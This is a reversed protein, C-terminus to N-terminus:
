IWVQFKQASWLYHNPEVLDKTSKHLKFMVSYIRPPDSTIGTFWSCLAILKTKSQDTVKNGPGNKFINRTAFGKIKCYWVICIIYTFNECYCQQKGPPIRVRTKQEEPKNSSWAALAIKPKLEPASFKIILYHWDDNPRCKAGFEGVELSM